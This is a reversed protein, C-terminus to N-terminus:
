RNETQRANSVSLVDASVRNVDHLPTECLGYFVGTRTVAKL